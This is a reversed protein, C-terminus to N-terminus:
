SVRSTPTRPWGTSVSSRGPTSSSTKDRETYQKVCGPDDIELQEALYEILEAPVDLPDPLLMGLYRVTVLQLAFGLRNYDRRRAAILKRDADDLYFFRDREARSLAGFRGYGAMGEDRVAPWAVVVVRGQKGGSGPSDRWVLVPNL